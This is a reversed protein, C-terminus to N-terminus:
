ESDVTQFAAVRGPVEVVEVLGSPSAGLLSTSRASEIAGVDALNPALTALLYLM